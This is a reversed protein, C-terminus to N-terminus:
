GNYRNMSADVGESVFLEIAESARIVVERLEDWEGKPFRQLVYDHLTIVNSRGIGVRLRPFEDWKLHYIINKMGNHTGGSGQKRIRIKGFDIDIDDYIVMVDSPDIGYYNVASAVAEGSLNMYTQPKLLIVKEGGIKIECYYSKFKIKSIPTNMRKALYDLVIFGVNHRTLEYKKGPNGLGVILKM